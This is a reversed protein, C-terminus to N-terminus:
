RGNRLDPLAPPHFPMIPLRAIVQGPGSVGNGCVSSKLIPIPSSVWWSGPSISIFWGGTLRRFNSWRNEGEVHLSETLRSGCGCGMVKNMNHPKLRKEMNKGLMMHLFFVFCFSDAGLMSMLPTRLSCSCDGHQQWCQEPMKSMETLPPSPPHSPSDNHACNIHFIFPCSPSVAPSDSSYWPNM